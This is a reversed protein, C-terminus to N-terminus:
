NLHDRTNLESIDKFFNCDEIMIRWRQEYNVNHKKEKIDRNKMELRSM